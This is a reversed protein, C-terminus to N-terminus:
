QYFLRIISTQVQQTVRLLNIKVMELVALFTVIIDRKTTQNVFLEEFTLSHKQEFLDM